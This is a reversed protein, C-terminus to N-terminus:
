RWDPPFGAALVASGCGGLVLWFTGLFEASLKALVAGSRERMPTPGITACLRHRIDVSSVSESRIRVDHAPDSDPILTTWESAPGGRSSARRALTGTV